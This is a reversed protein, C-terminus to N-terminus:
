LGRFRYEIPDEYGAEAFSELRLQCSPCGGCAPRQGRYCTHTLEFPVGKDIGVQVIDSKKSTIFPAQIQVKSATGQELAKFMYGFFEPTTDPYGDGDEAHAGYCIFDIGLSDAYGAAISLLISNRAPVYTSGVLGKKLDDDISDGHQLLSSNLDKFMSSLDLENYSTLRLEDAIDRACDIEVSHKQGYYMNLAHVEEHSEKAVAACVASDMGGSLLVLAKTM